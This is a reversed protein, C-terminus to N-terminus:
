FKDNNFRPNEFSVEEIEIRKIDSELDGLDLSPDKYNENVPKFETFIYDSKPLFFQPIDKRKSTRPESLDIETIWATALGLSYGAICEAATHYYLATCFNEYWSYVVVFVATSIIVFRLELHFSTKYSQIWFCNRILVGNAIAKRLIHGSIDFGTLEYVAPEIAEHILVFLGIIILNPIICMKFITSYSKEIEESPYKRKYYRAIGMMLICHAFLIIVAYDNLFDIQTFSLKYESNKDLSLRTPLWLIKLLIGSAIFMGRIGSEILLYRKLM